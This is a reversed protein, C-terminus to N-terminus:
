SLWLSSIAADVEWIAADLTGALAMYRSTKALQVQSAMPTVLKANEM